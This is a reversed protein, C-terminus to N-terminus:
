NTVIGTAEPSRKSITGLLWLLNQGHLANVKVCSYMFVYGKYVTHAPNYGHTQLSVAEPLFTNKIYLRKRERCADLVSGRGLIVPDCCPSRLSEVGPIVGGLIDAGSQGHARTHASTRKLCISFLSSLSPPKIFSLLSTTTRRKWTMRRALKKKRREGDREKVCVWVRTNKQSPRNQLLPFIFCGSANTLPWNCTRTHIHTHERLVNSVWLGMHTVRGGSM